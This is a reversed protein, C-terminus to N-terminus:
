IFSSMGEGSHLEPPKKMDVSTRSSPCTGTWTDVFDAFIVYFHFYTGSDQLNRSKRHIKAGM